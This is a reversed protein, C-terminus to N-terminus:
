QSLMFTASVHAGVPAITVTCDAGTGSCADGWGEFSSGAPPAATLLVMGPPFTKTCMTGCTIGAPSSTVTGLGDGRLAVTLTFPPLCIGKSCIGKMTSDTCDMGDGRGTCADIQDQTVCTDDATCVEGPRCFTSDGCEVLNSRLCGAALVLLAVRM